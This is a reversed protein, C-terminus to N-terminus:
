ARLPLAREEGGGLRGAHRVGNMAEVEGLWLNLEKVTTKGESDKIKRRRKGQATPGTKRGAPSSSILATKEASEFAIERGRRECSAGFCTM